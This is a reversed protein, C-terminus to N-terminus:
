RRRRVIFGIMGLFLGLELWPARQDGSTSCCGGGENNLPWCVGVGPTGTALCDFGVDCADAVNPTCTTSCRKDGANDPCLDSLCDQDRECPDGLEGTPPPWACRGDNCQQGDLCTDPSTCPEGLLVTLTASSSVGLDNYAKLELDLYGDPLNAPLKFSPAFTTPYTSQPEASSITNERTDWKYGNIILDIKRIGRPDTASPYIAKSIDITDGDHPLQVEVTPPAAGPGPGFVTMLKRHSNQKSGGCICAVAGSTGCDLSDDRFYKRTCGPIYTMPDSCHFEHDLGFAHATEQAATWCMEEVNGGTQNAFDFSIVNNIARCDGALPAIGGVNSPLGAEAATGAVIDEHHFVESGPNVDTIEVDFPAYLEKVCNVVANWTADDYAFESLTVTKTVINSKQTRADNGGPSITCGGRCRNLFIIKSIETGAEAPLQDPPIVVYSDAPGIPKPQQPEARTVGAFFLPAALAAFFWLRRM